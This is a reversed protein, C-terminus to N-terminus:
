PQAEAYRRRGEDVAEEADDRDAWGHIEVHKGEPEKYMSYFHQIEKRLQESLGDIGEVEDWAPDDAPVCVLKDSRGEEDDMRLVGVVRVEILCGPFTPANVCVLADLAEGTEGLTQTVFGYDTPYVVSSFLFRNLKIAQLEEDWEYKNRSGKPIEILCHLSPSADMVPALIVGM